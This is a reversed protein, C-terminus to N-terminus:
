RKAKDTLSDLFRTDDEHLEGRIPPPARHSGEERDPQTDPQIDHDNDRHPERPPKGVRSTQHKMAANRIAKTAHTDRCCFVEFTPTKFGGYDTVRLLLGSTFQQGEEAYQVHGCAGCEARSVNQNTIM